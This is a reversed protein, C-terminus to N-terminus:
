PWDCLRSKPECAVVSPSMPPSVCPSRDLPSVSSLKGARSISTSGTRSSGPPSLEPRISGGSQNPTWAESAPKRVISPAEPDEFGEALLAETVFKSAVSLALGALGLCSAAISCGFGPGDLDLDTDVIFSVTNAAISCLVCAVALGIGVAPPFRFSRRNRSALSMIAPAAHSLALLMALLVGARIAWLQKCDAPDSFTDAEDGCKDLLKERHRRVKEAGKRTVDCSIECDILADQSETSTKTVVWLSAEIQLTMAGVTEDDSWWSAAASVACLVAVMFM